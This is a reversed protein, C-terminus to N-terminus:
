PQIQAQQLLRLKERLAANEAEIQQRETAREAEAKQRETAREAEVKQWREEWIRRDQEWVQRDREWVQREQQRIKDAWGSEELIQEIVPNNIMATLEKFQEKNAQLLVQLYAELLHLKERVEDKELVKRLTAKDLGKRLYRLLPHGSEALHESQIIRIPIEYDVLEYAWVEGDANWRKEIKYERDQMYNLVARSAGTRVITITGEEWKVTGKETAMYVHAYAIVKHFDRISFTDEPSKYELINWTKFFSAIDHKLPRGPNKRIIVADPRLAEATLQYEFKLELEDRYPDFDTQIAGRFGSHWPILEATQGSANEAPAQEIVPSNIM